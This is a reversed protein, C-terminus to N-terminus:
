RVVPEPCRAGGVWGVGKGSEWFTAIFEAMLDPTAPMTTVSTVTASPFPFCPDWSPVSVVSQCLSSGPNECDTGAAGSM